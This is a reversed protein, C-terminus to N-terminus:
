PTRPQLSRCARAARLVAPRPQSAAPARPQAQARYLNRAAPAADDEWGAPLGAPGGGGLGAPLVGSDPLSPWLREPWHDPPLDQPAPLALLTSPCALCVPRPARARSLRGQGVSQVGDPGSTACLQSMCLSPPPLDAPQGEQWAARGRAQRAAHRGAQQACRDRLYKLLMVSTGADVSVQVCQQEQQKGQLPLGLGAQAVSGSSPAATAHATGTPELCGAAAPNLVFAHRELDAVGHPTVLFLLDPAAESLLTGAKLAADRLERAQRRQTANLSPERAPDLAFDGHPLLTAAVVTADAPTILFSMVGFFMLSLVAASAQM